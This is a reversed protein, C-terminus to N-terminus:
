KLFCTTVFQNDLIDPPCKQRNAATLLKHAEVPCNAGMRWNGTLFDIEEYGSTKEGEPYSFLFYKEKKITPANGHQAERVLDSWEQNAKRRYFRHGIFFSYDYRFFQIDSLKGFTPIYGEENPSNHNKDDTLVRTECRMIIEEAVATASLFCASLLVHVTHKLM